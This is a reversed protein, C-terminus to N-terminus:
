FNLKILTTTCKKLKSSDIIVAIATMTNNKRNGNRSGSRASGADRHDTNRNESVQTHKNVVM